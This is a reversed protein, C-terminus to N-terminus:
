GEDWAAVPATVGALGQLLADTLDELEWAVARYTAESLGIPDAVDEDAPRPGRGSARLRAAEDIRAVLDERSRGTSPPLAGLIAVMEKLTFTRATAEPVAELVEDRQEGTMTLIVDAWSAMRPEFPSSRHDSIDVGRRAAADQAEATPASGVRAWTGASRVELVGPLLRRSRDELLGLAM